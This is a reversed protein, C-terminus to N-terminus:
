TVNGGRMWRTLQAACSLFADGESHEGISCLNDGTRIWNEALEKLTDTDNRWWNEAEVAARALCGIIAMAEDSSHVVFVLAKGFGTFDVKIETGNGIGLSRRSIIVKGEKTQYSM